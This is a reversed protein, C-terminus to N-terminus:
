QVGHAVLRSAAQPDVLIALEDVCRTGGDGVHICRPIDDARHGGVQGVGQGEAIVYTLYEDLVEFFHLRFKVAANWAYRGDNLM